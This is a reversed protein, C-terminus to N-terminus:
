VFSDLKFYPVDLVQYLSNERMEMSIRKCRRLLV